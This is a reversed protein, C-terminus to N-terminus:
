FLSGQRDDAVARKRASQPEDPELEALREINRADDHVVRNVARTVQFMELQRDPAPTLLATADELPTQPDLWRDLMDAPLIVPMREHLPKLMENAHTTVIAAGDMEEGNPGIWTEWIGAFSMPAGDVRRIFWPQKRPDDRKREFFGDAPLLCRRRRIAHKFAPKEHITEVRANFLVAFTKRDKVWSPLLGWRMLAFHRVGNAIRVVPVPQTPAINYRPPFNPQELYRYFQRMEEPVTKIAFRGCM